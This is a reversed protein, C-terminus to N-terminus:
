RRGRGGAIETAIRRIDDGDLRGKAATLREIRRSTELATAFSALLDGLGEILSGFAPAGAHRARDAIM